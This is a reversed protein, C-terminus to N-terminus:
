TSYQIYVDLYIVVLGRVQPDYELRQIDKRIEMAGEKVHLEPM